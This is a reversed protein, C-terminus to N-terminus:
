PNVSILNTPARKSMRGIIRRGLANGPEEIFRFTIFSIPIVVLILLVYSLAYSVGVPFRAYLSPAMREVIICGVTHNLYISYSIEGAFVSWRNVIARIPVLGLGLILMGCLIARVYLTSEVRTVAFPYAMLYMGVMAATLLATGITRSSQRDRLSKYVHHTAIGIVFVPLQNLIGTYPYPWPISPAALVSSRWFQGVAFSAVLCALTMKWSRTATFLIPFVVYFLMETGISWGAYALGWEHGPFINFLFLVNLLVDVAGAKSNYIWGSILISLLTWVYFLPAIRFFRRIFFGATPAPESRRSEMSLSLTFASLVFFLTVAVGGFSIAPALWAPANIRPTTAFTLHVSAVYLAALGRLSSVFDLKKAAM